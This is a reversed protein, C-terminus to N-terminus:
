FKTANSVSHLDFSDSPDVPGCAIRESLDGHDSCPGVADWCRVDPKEARLGVTLKVSFSRKSVEIMLFQLKCRILSNFERKGVSFVAVWWKHGEIGTHVLSADRVVHSCAEVFRSEDFFEFFEM